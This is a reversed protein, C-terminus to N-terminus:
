KNSQDIITNLQFVFATHTHTHTHSSRFTVGSAIREIRKATHNEHIAFVVTSQISSRSFWQDQVLQHTTKNETKEKRSKVIHLCCGVNSNHLTQGLRIDVLHIRQIYDPM